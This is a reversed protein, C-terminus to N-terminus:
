DPPPAGNHTLRRMTDLCQVAGDENAAAQAFDKVLALDFHWHQQADIEVHTGALTHRDDACGARALARQKM